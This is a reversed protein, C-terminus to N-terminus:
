CQLHGKYKIQAAPSASSHQWSTVQWLAMKKQAKTTTNYTLSMKLTLIFAM